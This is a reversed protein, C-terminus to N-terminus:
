LVSTMIFLIIMGAIVGATNAYMDGWECNGKKLLYDHVLEKAIGIALAIGAAVLINVFIGFVVTMGASGIFHKIKDQAIM